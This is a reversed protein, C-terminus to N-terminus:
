KAEERNQRLTAMEGLSIPKIPTRAKPIELVTPAPAGTSKGTTQGTTQGLIGRVTPDCMRGQCPGMGARVATKIKRLGDAGEGIAQRIQGATVGECRCVTTEDSPAMFEPLPAYAADLFPRIARTRTLKKRSSKAAEDRAGATIRGCARLMEYGVIRGAAQAAEAGGIGAGDGAVFLGPVATDGWDNAVPQLGQQADNWIHAIGAARTMHTSPIVGLHTLLVACTMQKARGKAIFTFDIGGAEATTAAFGSAGTVRTIGAARIKRLMGLGDILAGSAALAKPLHRLASVGMGLTQTEVMAKPPVGADIMQAALLYLLPGSGALVADRPMLSSTKMLIQAAGATMVGPLTWGPFAMPREQAGTALLVCAAHAEHSQGQHSWIVSAGPTVRWVSAGFVTEINEHALAKILPAGQAYSRGLWPKSQANQGLNRYIQGGPNPQEDLLLVRCGGGAATAAAALGAPGAGIIIVDYSSM